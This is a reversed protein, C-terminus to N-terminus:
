IKYGKSTLKERKLAMKRSVDYHTWSGVEKDIM